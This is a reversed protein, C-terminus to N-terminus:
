SFIVYFFATLIISFLLNLVFGAKIMNNQPVLDTGFVMANPPTGVPMMFGYSAAITAPFVLIMPNVQLQNSMTFLLPLILAASATNSMFETLIISFLVIIWLFFFLPIVTILQSVKSVLIMGLGSQDILMGLTLGGGFLLLVDWQISKIIEDWNLVKTIYLLIIAIVAVLSNFGDTINLLPAILGDMVWLLVTFLFIAALTKNPADKEYQIAMTGISLKKDPRFYMTLVIVMLPFTIVFVPLGYMMWESFSLGLIAAGIANPPTSIMTIIGGINASYAIGLMLFKSEPSVINRKALVLMGLGLPIMMAASSTNSVWCATLSTALMLLISSWYFNGRAFSILKQALRKDLSYRSLAGALVFGGMFLFIIPHGFEKFAEKPSLLQLLTAIVPILLGTLALPIAESIWLVAVLILLAFANQAQRNELIPVWLISCFLVISIVVATLNIKKKIDTM